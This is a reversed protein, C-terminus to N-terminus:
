IDEWEDEFTGATNEQEAPQGEIVAVIRGWRYLPWRGTQAIPVHSLIEDVRPWDCRLLKRAETRTVLDWEGMGRVPISLVTERLERLEAALQTELDTVTM